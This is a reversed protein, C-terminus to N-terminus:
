LSSAIWKGSGDLREKRKIVWDPDRFVMFFRFQSKFGATQTVIFISESHNEPEIVDRSPDYTVPITSGLDVLRERNIGEDLSHINLIEELKVAYKQKIMSIDIDSEDAEDQASCFGAEWDKMSNMFKMLDDIAKESM